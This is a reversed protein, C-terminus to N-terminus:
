NLYAARAGIKHGSTSAGNNLDLGLVGAQGGNLWCGGFFPKNNDEPDRWLYDTLYTSESGGSGSTMLGPVDAEFNNPYLYSTATDDLTYETTSGGTEIIVSHKSNGYFSFGDVWKWINGYLNEVGRFSFPQTSSISVEGSSNGLSLTSGTNISENGTGTALDTVGEFIDQSYLTNYEIIFQLQEAWLMNWDWLGWGTGNAEAYDIFNTMNVDTTPQYDPLSRLTSSIVRGEFASLYYYNKEDGNLALFAPHLTFGSAPTPSILFHWGNTDKYQKYYFKPVQVMCNLGASEYASWDVSEEDTDVLSSDVDGPSAWKDTDSADHYGAISGDTDLAVRKRDKWPSLTNFDIAM